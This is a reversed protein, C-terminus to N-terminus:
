TRYDPDFHRPAHEQIHMLYHEHLMAVREVCGKDIINEQVYQCSAAFLMENQRNLTIQV